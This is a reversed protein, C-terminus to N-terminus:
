TGYAPTERMSMWTMNSAHRQPHGAAVSVMAPVGAPLAVIAAVALVGIFRRM